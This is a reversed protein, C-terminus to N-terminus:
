AKFAKNQASCKTLHSLNWFFPIANPLVVFFKTKAHLPTFIADINAPMPRSTAHDSSASAKVRADLQQLIFEIEDKLAVIM